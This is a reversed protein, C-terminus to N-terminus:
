LTTVPQSHVSRRFTHVDPFCLCRGPFHSQTPLENFDGVDLVLKLPCDSQLQEDMQARTAASKPDAHRHRILVRHAGLQVAIRQLRFAGDCPEAAIPAADVGSRALVALGGSGPFLTYGADRLDKMIACRASYM